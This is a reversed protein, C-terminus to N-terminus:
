EGFSYSVLVDNRNMVVLVTKDQPTKATLVEIALSAGSGDTLTSEIRWSGPVVYRSIHGM